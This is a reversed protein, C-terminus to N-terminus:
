LHIKTADVSLFDLIGMSRLVLSREARRAQKFDEQNRPDITGNEVSSYLVASVTSERGSIPKRCARRVDAIDFIAVPM